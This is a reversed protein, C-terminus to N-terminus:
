DNIRVPLGRLPVDLEVPGDLKVYCPTGFGGCDEGLANASRPGVHDRLVLAVLAGAIVTLVFKTYSDVM